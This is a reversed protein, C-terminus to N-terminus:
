SEHKLKLVRKAGVLGVIVFGIIGSPEPVPKTEPPPTLVVEDIKSVPTDFNGRLAIADNLCEEFLSAIYNGNPFLSRSFKFGFLQSGQFLGGDFGAAYLSNNDLSIVDGVRNGSAIVNPVSETYSSNTYREGWYPDNWALHGVNNPQQQGRKSLVTNHHRGFNRYGANETQVGVGFVNSYVGVGVKSDNGPAFRVGFLQRNDNSIGFERNGSFDFFIDGWGINGNSIVYRNGASDYSYDKYHGDRGMHSSIGVWINKGDDKIGMGFIEFIGANHEDLSDGVADHAYMWSAAFATKQGTLILSLFILFCFAKIFQAKNKSNQKIAM